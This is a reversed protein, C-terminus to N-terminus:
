HFSAVGAAGAVFAGGVVHGRLELFGTEFRRARVSEDLRHLELRALDIFRM